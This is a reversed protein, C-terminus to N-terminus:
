LRSGLALPTLSVTQQIHQLATDLTEAITQRTTNLETHIAPDFGTPQYDRTQDQADRRALDLAVSADTVNKGKARLDAGRRQGRQSLDADVYFKVDAEPFVYKGSTRGEAVVPTRSANILTRFTADTGDLVARLGSFYPATQSVAISRLEDKHDKQLAEITEWSTLTGAYRAAEHIQDPTPPTQASPDFGQGLMHLAILRFFLSYELRRAGYARAIEASLTSKGSASTGDIAIVPQQYANPM